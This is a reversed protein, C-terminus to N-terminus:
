SHRSLDNFASEIANKVEKYSVVLCSQEDRSTLMLKDESGADLRNLNSLVHSLDLVPKLPGNNHGHHSTSIHRKPGDELSATTVSHFIHDRFMSILYREGTSSWNPDHDYEPRENIFGMKCLLRVLRANELEKSLSEELLDSYNESADLEEALHSGLLGLLTAASKNSNSDNSGDQEQNLLWRVVDNLEKSYHRSLIDLSSPLNGVANVSVCALSLVLVGLKYLDERQHELVSESSPPDHPDYGLVDLVSCCNFRVRHKGTKIVKGPEICRVALGHKHVSGLASALQTLYSWLTREPIHMDVAQMRGTRADVRPPKPLLHEAFLTTSLPHYDYVFVISAEGWRWSTFAERVNVVGPCRLRRWREVAELARERERGLNFGVIRRLAYAKGDLTCTARHIETPYGGLASSPALPGGSASVPLSSLSGMGALLGHQNYPLLHRPLMATPVGGVLIPNGRSGFPLGGSSDPELPVLDKYVHVEDPQPPRAQTGGLESISPASVNIAENRRFLDERLSPSMFHAHHALHQPHLNSTHPLPPASLHYQLPQRLPRHSQATAPDEYGSQEQQQQQQQQQQQEMHAYPNFPRVPLDANTSGPAIHPPPGGDQGPLRPPMGGAYTPDFAMSDNEYGAGGGGGPTSYGTPTGRGSQSAPTFIASGAPGAVARAYPNMASSSSSPYQHHHQQQQQHNHYHQPNPSTFASASSSHSDSAGNTDNHSSSAVSSAADTSSEDAKTTSKPVFVAAGAAKSLGGGAAVLTARTNTPSSLNAKRLTPTNGTSAAPTTSTGDPRMIPVAASRPAPTTQQSSTSPPAHQYHHPQFRTNSAGGNNNSQQQRFQPSFSASTASINSWPQSQQQQTTTSQSQSQSQSSSPQLGPPPGGQYSNYM